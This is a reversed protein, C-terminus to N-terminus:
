SSLSRANGAGNSTLTEDLRRAPERILFLVLSWAVGPLGILLLVLRWPPMRGIPTSSLFGADVAHLVAGGILIAAGVGM